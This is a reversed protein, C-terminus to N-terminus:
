YPCMKLNCNQVCLQLKAMALWLLWVTCYPYCWKEGFKGKFSTRQAFLGFYRYYWLQCFLCFSGAETASSVLGSWCSTDAALATQHKRLLFYVHLRFNSLQLDKFEKAVIIPSCNLFSLWVSTNPDARGQIRDVVPIHFKIQLPLVAPPFKCSWLWYAINCFASTVKRKPLITKLWDWEQISATVSLVWSGLLLSTHTHTHDLQKDM